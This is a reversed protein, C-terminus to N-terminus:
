DSLEGGFAVNDREDTVAAVDSPAVTQKRSASKLVAQEVQVRLWECVSRVLGVESRTVGVSEPVGSKSVM